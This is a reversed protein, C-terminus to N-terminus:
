KGELLPTQSLKLLKTHIGLPIYLYVYTLIVCFFTLIFPLTAQSHLLHLTEGLMTVAPYYVRNLQFNPIVEFAQPSTLVM